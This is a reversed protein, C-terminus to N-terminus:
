GEGAPNEPQGARANAARALVWLLDSLRNTWALARRLGEPPAGAHGAAIFTVMEREARRVVTRALDLAAALPTGGPLVFGRFGGTAAERRDIERELRSVDLAEASTKGTGGVTAGAAFIGRQIKELMVAIETEGAPGCKARALGVASSAEDLAGLLVIEPADKRGRKGGPLSTEGSDGTRTYISM